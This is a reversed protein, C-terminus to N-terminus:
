NHIEGFYKVSGYSMNRMSPYFYNELFCCEILSAPRRALFVFKYVVCYWQVGVWRARRDYGIQPWNRVARLM